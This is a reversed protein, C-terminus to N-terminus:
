AAVIADRPQQRSQHAGRPCALQHEGGLLDIGGSAFRDADDVAHDGIRAQLFLSKRKGFRHGVPRGDRHAIHLIIEIFGQQDIEGGGAIM